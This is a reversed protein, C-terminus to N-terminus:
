TGLMGLFEDFDAAIVTVREDPDADRDFEILPWPPEGRIDFGVCLGGGNLGILVFGKLFEHMPGPRLPEWTCAEVLDEASSLRFRFQGKAASWEGGNAFALLTYFSEPLPAPAVERLQALVEDSAGPELEYFQTRWNM